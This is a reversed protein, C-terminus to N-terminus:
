PTTGQNAKHFQAALTFRFSPAINTPACIGHPITGDFVVIRGPKYAVCHEIEDCEDNTFVTYGGWEIEWKMNPYYLLTKSDSYGDVHIHNKDNLTSLNVRVQQFDWGDFERAIEEIAPNDMFGMRAFDEKTYGSFLNYDGMTELNPTDGGFPRFLSTSVYQCYRQRDAYSFCDDYVDITKGNSMTHTKKRM